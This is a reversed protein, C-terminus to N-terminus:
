QKKSEEHKEAKAAHLDAWHLMLALECERMKYGANATDYQGDNLKIAQWEEFDVKVDYSQLIYLAGDSTTLYDLEPNTIYPNIFLHNKSPNPIYRDRHDDGIKGFDHFLGVFALKHKPWRGPSLSESLKLLNKVVNISHQCLGGPYASHYIHKSSAPATFYREGVSGDFMKKVNERRVEPFSDVLKMVKAINEIKQDESITM